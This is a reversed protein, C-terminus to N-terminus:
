KMMMMDNGRAQLVIQQSKCYERLARQQYYPHFEVQNLVPRVTITPDELLERLHREEFNSVGVARILGIYWSLFSLSAVMIRSLQTM